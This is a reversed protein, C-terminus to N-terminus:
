LKLEQRLEEWSIGQEEQLESLGQKLEEVVNPEAKINATAKWSEIVEDISTWDGTEPSRYIAELLETFFEAIEESSFHKLWIFSQPLTFLSIQGNVRPLSVKGIIVQDATTITM